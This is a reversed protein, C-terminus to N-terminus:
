KARRWARVHLALGVALPLLVVMVAFATVNMAESITMAVRSARATPDDGRYADNTLMSAGLGAFAFATLGGASWLCRRAHRAISPADRARLGLVLAAIAHTNIGIAAVGLLSPFIEM